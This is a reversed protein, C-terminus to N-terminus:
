GRVVFRAINIKIVCEVLSSGVCAHRGGGNRKVAYPSFCSRALYDGFNSRSQFLAVDGIGGDISTAEFASRSSVSDFPISIVHSLPM